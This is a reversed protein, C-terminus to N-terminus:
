KRNSGAWSTNPASGTQFPNGETTPSSIRPSSFSKNGDVSADNTGDTTNFHSLFTPTPIYVNVQGPTGSDEALVDTGVFNM